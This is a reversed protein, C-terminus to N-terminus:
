GIKTNVTLLAFVPHSSNSMWIYDNDAIVFQSTDPYYDYSYWSQKEICLKFICTNVTVHSNGKMNDKIYLYM